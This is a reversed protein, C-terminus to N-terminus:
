MPSQQTCSASDHIHSEYQIMNTSKEKKLYVIQFNSDSLFLMLFNVIFFGNQWIICLMLKGYSVVCHSPSMPHGKNHGNLIQQMLHSFGVCAPFLYVYACFVHFVMSCSLSQSVVDLYAQFLYM